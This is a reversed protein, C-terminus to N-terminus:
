GEGEGNRTWASSQAAQSVCFALSVTMSRSIANSPDGSSSWRALHPGAIIEQVFGDAAGSVIVLGPQEGNM